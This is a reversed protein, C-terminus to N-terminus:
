NTVACTSSNGQHRLNTIYNASRRVRPSTLLVAVQGLHRRQHSGRITGPGLLDLVTVSGDPGVASGPFFLPVSIYVGLFFLSSPAEIADTSLVLFVDPFVPLHSRQFLVPSM